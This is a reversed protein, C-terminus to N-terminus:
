SVHCLTISVFADSCQRLLEALLRAGGLDPPEPDAGAGNWCVTSKKWCCNLCLVKWSNDPPQFHLEARGEKLDIECYSLFVLGKNGWSLLVARGIEFTHPPWAAFEFCVIVFVRCRKAPPPRTFHFPAAMRETKM